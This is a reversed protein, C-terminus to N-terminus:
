GSRRVAEGGSRGGLLRRYEENVIRYCDCSASELKRRDVVRIWGRTYEIMGARQLASAARSVQPRRVGLMMGLFEQTLPFEDSEVRDHTMLLWRACREEISHSRNCAASQAIQNILAQTYLQLLQHLKGGNRIEARFQSAKILLGQSPIQCFARLTTSESGLFVPLGVFGEYGVTAVEVTTDLDSVLSIVGTNPFFVNGIPENVDYIADQPNLEVPMAREVIRSRDASSLALLLQNRVRVENGRKAM